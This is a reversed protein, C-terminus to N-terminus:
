GAHTEQTEQAAIALARWAAHALPHCGSDPDETEGMEWRRLHRYMAEIHGQDVRWHPKRGAARKRAGDETPGRLLATFERIIEDRESV